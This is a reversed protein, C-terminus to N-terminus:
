SLLTKLAEGASPLIAKVVPNELLGQLLSKAQKAEEPPAKEIEQLLAQLQDIVVQTNFQTNGDGIQFNASNSINITSQQPAPKIATTKEINLTWHPPIMHLGQSYSAQTVLWREMAGSPLQRLLVDGDEVSENGLVEAALDAKGASAQLACKYPGLRERGDREIHVVDNALSAFPSMSMKEKLQDLCEAAEERKSVLLQLYQVVASHPGPNRHVMRSGLDQELVSMFARLSDSVRQSSEDTNRRCYSGITSGLAELDSLVSGVYSQAERVRSRVASPTYMSKIGQGYLDSQRQRTAELLFLTLGNLVGTGSM